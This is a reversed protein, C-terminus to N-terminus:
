YVLKDLLNVRYRACGVLRSGNVFISAGSVRAITNYADSDLFNVLLANKCSYQARPAEVQEERTIVQDVFLWTFTM